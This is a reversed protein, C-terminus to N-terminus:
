QRNSDLCDLLALTSPTNSVLGSTMHLCIVFYLIATLSRFFDAGIYTLFLQMSVTEYPCMTQAAYVDSVTWEFGETMKQFRKTADLLYIGVWEETAKIGGQNLGGFANPCGDYGSLSNNFEKGEIIVEITANNPWELGFFGAM